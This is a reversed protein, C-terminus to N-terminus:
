RWGATPPTTSGAREPAPEGRDLVHDRDLDRGEVAVPGEIHDPAHDLGPCLLADREVGAIVIVDDEVQQARGREPAALLATM